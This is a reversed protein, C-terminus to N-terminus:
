ITAFSRSVRRDPNVNTNRSLRLASTMSSSIVISLRKRYVLLISWAVVICPAWLANVAGLEDGAIDYLMLAYFSAVLCGIFSAPAGHLDPVDGVLEILENSILYQMCYTDLWIAISILVSLLPFMVGFTMMITMYGLLRACYNAVLMPSKGIPLFIKTSSNFHRSYEDIAAIQVTVV